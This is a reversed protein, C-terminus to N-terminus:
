TKRYYINDVPKKTRKNIKRYIAKSFELKEKKTKIKTAPNINMYSIYAQEMVDQLNQHRDARIIFSDHIALVLMPRHVLPSKKGYYKSGKTIAYKPMRHKIGYLFYAIVYSAIESDMRYQLNGISSYFYEKITIDRLLHM